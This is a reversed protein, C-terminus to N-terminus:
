KNVLEFHIKFNYERGFLKSVLKRWVGQKPRWVWKQNCSCEMKGQCALLNDTVKLELLKFGIPSKCNGCYGDYLFGLMPKDRIITPFKYKITIIQTKRNINIQTEAVISEEHHDSEPTEPNTSEPTLEQAHFQLAPLTYIKTNLQQEMSEHSRKNPIAQTDLQRPDIYIPFVQDNRLLEELDNYPESNSARSGNHNNLTSNIVTFLAIEKEILGHNTKVYLSDLHNYQQQYKQTLKLVEKQNDVVLEEKAKIYLEKSKSKWSEIDAYLSNFSNPNDGDSLQKIASPVLEYLLKTPHNHHSKQICSSCCLSKCQLCYQDLIFQHLDCTKTGIAFETLVKQLTNVTDLQHM